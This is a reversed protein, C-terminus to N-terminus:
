GRLSRRTTPASQLVRRAGSRRRHVPRRAHGATPIAPRWRSRVRSPSRGRRRDHRLRDTRAWPSGGTRHGIARSAALSRRRSRPRLRFARQEVRDGRALEVIMEVRNRQRDVCAPPQEVGDVRAAHERGEADSIADTDTLADARAVQGAEVPRDDLEVVTRRRDTEIGWDPAELAAAHTARRQHELPGSRSGVARGARVLKLVKGMLNLARKRVSSSGRCSRPVIPRACTVTPEARTVLPCGLPAPRHQSRCADASDAIRYRHLRKPRGYARARRLCVAM